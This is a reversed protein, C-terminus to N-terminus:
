GSAGKGGKGKGGSAGQELERPGVGGSGSGVGKFRVVVASINDTSQLELSMDVLAGAAEECTSPPWPEETSGHEPKPAKKKPGASASGAEEEAAGGRLVQSVFVVAEENSMVDWVGDCALILTEDGAGRVHVGIDPVPSVMMKAPPLSADKYQFDGIARSMALEGMVRSFAVHGGAAEIRKREEEDDPKHDQSMSVCSSSTGIVARSDGVSACLIHTPTILACVLTCGSADMYDSERLTTDLETFAHVLAQQLLVLQQNQAASDGSAAAPSKAKKSSSGSVTAPAAAAAAAAYAKWQPTNELLDCFINSAITAAGEGAHGDLIAVLTHGAVSDLSSIIYADEMTVRYGQISSHGIELGNVLVNVADIKATKPKNNLHSGLMSLGKEETSRVRKRSALPSPRRSM